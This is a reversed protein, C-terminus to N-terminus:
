PTATPYPTITLNALVPTVGVGAKWATLYPVPDILGRRSHWDTPYTPPSIGFHLHTPRGVADGTNGIIGLLQGPKVRVGPAIGPAISALHSGYYRVGDDGIIAVSLGGRVNPDDTEQNWLDTYSVFDVVGSTVAVFRADPDDIFIDTAPYPHGGEQFGADKAPQVPFVYVFPVRTATPTPTVTPTDSPLPTASAPQTASPAFSATPPLTPSAAATSSATPLLLAATPSPSAPAAACATLLLGLGAGLLPKM